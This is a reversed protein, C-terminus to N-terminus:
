NYKKFAEMYVYLKELKNIKLLFTINRDLIDAKEKSSLAFLYYYNGKQIINGHALANRISAYLSELFSDPCYLCIFSKSDTKIKEALNNKPSKSEYASFFYCDKVDLGDIIYNVLSDIHKELKTSFKVGLNSEKSPTLLVIDKYVDSSLSDVNSLFALPKGMSSMQRLTLKCVQKKSAKVYNEAM